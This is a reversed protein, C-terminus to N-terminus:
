RSFDETGVRVLFFGTGGAPKSLTLSVGNETARGSACAASPSKLSALDGAASVGYWFGPKVSALKLTVTGDAAAAMKRCVEANTESFALAELDLEPTVVVAGEEDFTVKKKFCAVDQNIDAPLYVIQEALSAAEAMTFAARMKPIIKVTYTPRFASFEPVNDYFVTDSEAEISCLRLGNWVNGSAAWGYSGPLTYARATSPCSHFVYKGIAPGNGSFTVSSLATCGCFAYDNLIMVDGEFVVRKLATCSYFAYSGVSKLSEPLSIACLSSCNQFSSSGLSVVGEPLTISTLKECYYFAWDGIAVVACRGLSSPVCVAGETTRAIAPTCFGSGVVTAKSQSVTFSWEVGDVTEKYPGGDCCAALVKMGYWTDGVGSWGPLAVPLTVQAGEPVDTFIKEGMQPADGYFRVSMLGPCIDFARNGIIAVNPSFEMSSLGCCGSFAYAGINTVSPPLTIASLSVCSGFAFNGIRGIKSPLTIRELARCLLFMGDPIIDLGPSLNINELSPCDYFAREGIRVVSEPIAIGKLSRCQHFAYNGINTLTSPLTVETIDKKYLAYDSLRRVGSPIALSKQSGYYGFLIDKLVTFGQANTLSYCENFAIDGIDLDGAPLTVRALAACQYFAGYEIRKVSDPISVGTLNRCNRFAYKGVRTVSRGDIKSPLTINGAISSPVALDGGNQGLAVTGDSEVEYTWVNGEVDTWTAACAVFTAVAAFVSALTKAPTERRM